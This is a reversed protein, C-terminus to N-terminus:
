ANETENNNFDFGEETSELEKQIKDIIRQFHANIPDSMPYDDNIAWGCADM